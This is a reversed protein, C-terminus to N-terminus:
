LDKGSRAVEGDLQHSELITYVSGAKRLESEMIDISNAPVVLNIEEEIAPIEEPEIQRWEWQLIRGLTIHPMFERAESDTELGALASSLDNRLKVFDESKKGVAWIM